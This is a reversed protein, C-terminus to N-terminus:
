SVRILKRDEILARILANLRDNSSDIKALLRPLYNAVEVRLRRPLDKFLARIFKASDDEDIFM